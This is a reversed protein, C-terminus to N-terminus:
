AERLVLHEVHSEVRVYPGAVDKRPGSDDHVLVGVASTGDEFLSSV